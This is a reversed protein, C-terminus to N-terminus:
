LATECLAAQPIEDDDRGGDRFSMMVQHARSSEIRRLRTPNPGNRVSAVKEGLKWLFRPGESQGLLGHMMYDTM